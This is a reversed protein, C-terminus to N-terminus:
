VLSAEVDATAVGTNAITIVVSVSTISLDTNFEITRDVGVGAATVGIAGINLTTTGDTVTVVASTTVAGGVTSTRIRVKGRSPPPGGSTNFATGGSPTTAGSAPITITNASATTLVFSNVVGYYSPAGYGPMSQSVPNLFAPM